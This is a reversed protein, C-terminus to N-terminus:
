YKKLPLSNQFLTYPIKPNNLVTGTPRTFIEKKFGKCISIHCHLIKETNPLIKERLNAPFGLHSRAVTAVGGGVGM